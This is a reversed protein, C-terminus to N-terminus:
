RLPLTRLLACIYVVDVTVYILAFTCIAFRSCVRLRPLRLQAIRGTAYGHTWASFTFTLTRLLYWILTFTVTHPTHIRAAVLACGPHTAVFHVFATCFTFGTWGARLDLRCRLTPCFRADHSGRLRADVTVVADRLRLGSGAVVYGFRAVTHPLGHEARLAIRTVYVYRLLRTFRPVVTFRLRTVVGPILIGVLRAHLLWVYGVFACRTYGYCILYVYSRLLWCVRTPEIVVM